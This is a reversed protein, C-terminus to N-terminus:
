TSSSSATMLACTAAVSSVRCCAVSACSCAAVEARWTHPYPLTPFPPIAGLLPPLEAGRGVSLLAAASGWEDVASLNGRKQEQQEGESGERGACAFHASDRRACCCSSDSPIRFAAASDFCCASAVILPREVPTASISRFGELRLDQGVAM